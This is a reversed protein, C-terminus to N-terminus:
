EDGAKLPSLDLGCEESAFAMEADYAANAAVGAQALLFVVDDNALNEGSVSYFDAAERFAAATAEWVQLDRIKAIRETSVAAFDLSEGLGARQEEQSFAALADARELTEELIGCYDDSSPKLPLERASGDDSPSSDVTSPSPTPTVSGDESGSCGSLAVVAVGVM